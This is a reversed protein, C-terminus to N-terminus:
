CEIGKRSLVGDHYYHKVEQMESVLDAAEIMRDTAGRGTIVLEVGDPKGRMLALVDDEPLLGMAVPITVEDLIVVNYDGSMVADRARAFGEHASRVDAEDAERGIICGAENGYLEVTIEPFRERIIGIEGYEMEKIFEGIYVKLGAGAARMALGLAATTKGKGGGTYIQVYGKTMPDIQVKMADTEKKDNNQRRGSAADLQM